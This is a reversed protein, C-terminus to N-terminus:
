NTEEKQTVLTSYLEKNTSANRKLGGGTPIDLTQFHQKTGKSQASVPESQERKLTGSSYYVFSDIRKNLSEVVRKIGDAITVFV